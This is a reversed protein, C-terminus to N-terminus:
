SNTKPAAVRSRNTGRIRSELVVIGALILAMGVLQALGMTEGLLAWAFILTAPPGVTSLISSREAGVRKVGEAVMFLPLVTVFIVLFVMLAWARGSMAFSDPASIGLHLALGAGAATMAYVTFPVSGIRNGLADSAFFYVALTAACILVLGAGAANERLLAPDLGGIVLYVGAYTCVTALVTRRRPWRRLILAQAVVVLAPYSFLLVRELSADIMTLAKFNLYAGVYYCLLGALASLMVPMARVGLLSKAGTQWLAWAWFLPVALAARVGVVATFEVGEAFLLKAIIGKLSLLLAGGIVLAVGM